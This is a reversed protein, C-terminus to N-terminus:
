GVFFRRCLTRCLLAPWIAFVVKVVCKLLMHQLLIQAPTITTDSASHRTGPTRAIIFKMIEIGQYHPLRYAFEALANILSEQYLKEHTVAEIDDVPIETLVSKNLNDVLKSTIELM